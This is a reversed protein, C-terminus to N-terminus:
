SPSERRARLRGTFHSRSSRPFLRRRGGLLPEHRRQVPGATMNSPRVVDPMPCCQRPESRLRRRLM